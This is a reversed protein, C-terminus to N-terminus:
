RWPGSSHNSFIKWNSFPYDFVRWSFMSRSLFEMTDIILAAIGLYLIIAIGSSDAVLKDEAALGVSVQYVFIFDTTRSQTKEFNKM